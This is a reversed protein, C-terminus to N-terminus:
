AATIVGDVAAERTRWEEYFWDGGVCDIRRNAVSADAPFRELLMHPLPFFHLHLDFTYRQPRQRPVVVILRRAAVRRLERVAVDLRQVHELTHTCVVTDFSRDAFPLRQVNGEVFRVHAHRARADADIAIDCATVEHRRGLIGALHGRGCGVELVRPGEVRDAIRALCAANLDTERRVHVGATERYVRLFAEDDLELARDKFEMFTRAHRGFLMRFPLWIFWPQDRPIPPLCADLVFHVALAAGRSIRM